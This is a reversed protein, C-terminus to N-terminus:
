SQSRWYGVIADARAVMRPLPALTKGQDLGDLFCLYPLYGAVITIPLGSGLTGQDKCSGLLYYQYSRRVDRTGNYAIM